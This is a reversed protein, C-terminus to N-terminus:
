IYVYAVKMCWVMCINELPQLSHFSLFIYVKFQWVLTHLLLSFFAFHNVMIKLSHIAFLLQLNLNRSIKNNLIQVALRLYAHCNSCQWSSPVCHRVCVLFLMIRHPQLKLTSISIIITYCFNNFQSNFRNSPDKTGAARKLFFSSSFIVFFSFM